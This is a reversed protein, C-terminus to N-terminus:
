DMLDELEYFHDLNVYDENFSPNPNGPVNAWHWNSLFLDPDEPYYGYDFGMDTVVLVHPDIGDNEEKVKNAYNEVLRLDTGGRYVLERTETDFEMLESAWSVARVKFYREPLNDILSSMIEIASDPISGSWDLAFILVPLSGNEYEDGLNERYHPVIMKPYCHTYRRNPFRWEYVSDEDSGGMKFEPNIKKLVEGWNMSISEDTDGLQTFYGAPKNLSYGGPINVGNSEAESAKFVADDSLNDGESAASKFADAIMKGVADKVDEDSPDGSSDGQQGSQGHDCSEGDMAGAIKQLLDQMASEPDDTDLANEMIWDYGERTTFDSFSQDWDNEGFMVGDPADLALTELLADNITYEHVATLIRKNSYYEDDFEFHHLRLIHEVEHALAFGVQEDTMSKSYDPNVVFVYRWNGKNDNVLATAFTGSSEPHPIGMGRVFHYMDPDASYLAELGRKYDKMVRDSASNRAM